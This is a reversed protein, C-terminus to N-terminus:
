KEPNLMTLYFTFSLVENYEGLKLTWTGGSPNNRVPLVSNSYRVCFKLNDFIRYYLGVGISLDLPNFPDDLEWGDAEEYSHAM